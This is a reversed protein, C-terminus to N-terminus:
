ISYLLIYNILAESKRVLWVVLYACLVFYVNIYVNLFTLAFILHLLQTVPNWISVTNLSCKNVQIINEWLKVKSNSTKSWGFSVSGQFSCILMSVTPSGMCYNESFCHVDIHTLLVSYQIMRCWFRRQTGKEDVSM